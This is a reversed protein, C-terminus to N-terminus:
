FDYKMLQSLRELQAGTRERSVRVLIYLIVPYVGFVVIYAYIPQYVRFLYPLLMAGITAWALLYFAIRASRRGLGDLHHPMEPASRRRLRGSDESNRAGFYRHCHHHSVLYVPWRQRSCHRWFYRELRFHLGRTVNGLLVTSKLRWSYLFLLLNSVIAIILAPLNIFAALLISLLATSIAFIVATRPTIMGSPLPRQPQNIKDIEIDRYDNWANASSSVLITVVAALFIHGWAGTGAVYGGLLVALAGSLTSLPRSIKYLGKVQSM